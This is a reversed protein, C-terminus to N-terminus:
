ILIEKVEFNPCTKADTFDRHGYAEIGPYVHKLTSYLHRLSDFQNPFEDNGVLCVGISNANHGYCHAGTLEIPRGPHIVGDRTIVYHYGIDSWGNGNTHWDRIDAVSVNRDNPTASCHVILKNITRM